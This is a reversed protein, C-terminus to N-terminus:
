GLERQLESLPDTAVPAPTADIQQNFADHKARITPNQELFFGMAAVSPFERPPDMAFVTRTPDLQSRVNAEREPGIVDQFKKVQDALITVKDKVSGPGNYGMQVLTEELAEENPAVGNAARRDTINRHVADYQAKKAAHARRLATVAQNDYPRDADMLFLGHYNLTEQVAESGPKGDRFDDMQQMTLEVDGFAPIRIKIGRDWDLKVEWPTPNCLKASIAM